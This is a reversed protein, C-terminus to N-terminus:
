KSSKAFKAGLSVIGVFCIVGLVIYLQNGMDATKPNEITTTTTTTPDIPKTTTTTTTPPVVVTPNCVVLMYYTTGTKEFDSTELVAYNDTFFNAKDLTGVSTITTNNLISKVTTYDKLLYSRDYKTGIDHALNTNTATNIRVIYTNSYDGAAKLLENPIRIYMTAKDTNADWTQGEKLSFEFPVAHVVQAGSNDQYFKAVAKNIIDNSSPILKMNLKNTGTLYYDYAETIYKVQLEQANVNGMGFLGVVMIMFTFLIKTLKKM